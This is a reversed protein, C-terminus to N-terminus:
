DQNCVPEMVGLIRTTKNLCVPSSLFVTDEMYDLAFFVIKLYSYYNIQKISQVYIFHMYLTCIYHILM